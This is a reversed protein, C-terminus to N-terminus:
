LPEQNLRHTKLSVRADDPREIEILVEYLALGLDAAPALVPDDADELRSITLRWTAGDALEGDSEGVELPIARGVEALKSRAQLVGTVHTQSQRLGSLGTSFARMVATLSLALITFAVLIEILTFGSRRSRPTGRNM